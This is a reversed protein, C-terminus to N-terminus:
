VPKNLRSASMTAWSPLFLDTKSILILSCSYLFSFKLLSFSSRKLPFPHFSLGSFLSLRLCPEYPATSQSPFSLLHYVTSVLQVSQFFYVCHNSIFSLVMSFKLHSNEPVNSAQLLDLIVAEPRFFTCCGRHNSLLSHSAKNMINANLVCLPSVSLFVWKIEPSWHIFAIIIHLKNLTFLTIIVYM